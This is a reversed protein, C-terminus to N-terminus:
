LRSNTAARAKLKAEASKAEAANPCAAGGGGSGDKKLLVFEGELGAGAVLRGKDDGVRM